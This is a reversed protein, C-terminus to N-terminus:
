GRSRSIALAGRLSTRLSLLDNEPPLRKTLLPACQPKALDSGHFDALLVLELGFYIEARKLRAGNPHLQIRIAGPAAVGGVLFHHASFDMIAHVADLRLADIHYDRLWMLANQIFFNRVGDCWAPDITLDERCAELFAPDYGWHAKSRLALASIAEAEAPRAARVTATM